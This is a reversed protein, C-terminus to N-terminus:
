HTWSIVEQGIKKEIANRMAEYHPCVFDMSKGLSICSALAIREAGQEQMLKARSVAQKGPCGGCSVFGVIEVPGFEKFAGTGSQAAKFDARGVCAHETQQCRIIGVKM